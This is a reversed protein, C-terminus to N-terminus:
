RVVTRYSDPAYEPKENPYRLFRDWLLLLVLILAFASLTIMWFKRNFEPRKMQHRFRRIGTNRRRRRHTGSVDKNATEDFSEPSRRRRRPSSPPNDERKAWPSEKVEYIDSSSM